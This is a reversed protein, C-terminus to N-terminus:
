MSNVKACMHDQFLKALVKKLNWRVFKVLRDDGNNSHTADEITGLMIQEIHFCTCCGCDNSGILMSCYNNKLMIDSQFEKIWNKEFWSPLM